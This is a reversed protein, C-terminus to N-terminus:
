WFETAGIIRNLTAWLLGFSLFTCKAICKLDLSLQHSFYGFDGVLSTTICSSTCYKKVEDTCM